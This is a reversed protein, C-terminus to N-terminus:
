RSLPVNRFQVYFGGNYICYFEVLPLTSTKSAIDFQWGAKVPIDSILWHSVSYGSTNAIWIHKGKYQNGYEDFISSIRGVYSNYMSLKKDSDHSTILLHCTVTKGSLHCKQLDFTFGKITVPPISKPTPKPTHKPKPSPNSDSAPEDLLEAIAQTKAINGAQANIVVATNTDLIKVAIRVNDGFPTLTGTVLAEVGAIKGLQRATQPDIIGTTALKHEQLITKLHTRDIVQFGKGAGALAVSFEEAIFRGLLTVEGSLDTFDVVAVKTKGVAAIKKAMTASIHNIEKEYANANVLMLVLPTICTLFFM